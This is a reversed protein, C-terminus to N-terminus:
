EYKGEKEATKEVPVDEKKVPKYYWGKRRVSWRM